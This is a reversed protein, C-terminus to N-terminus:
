EAARPKAEGLARAVGEPDAAIAVLYASAVADPEAHHREWAALLDVPIRYRAAFEDRSLKLQWRLRKAGAVPRLRALQEDSLPPNDSDSEAAAIVEDDTLADLKSWDTTTQEKGDPADTEKHQM